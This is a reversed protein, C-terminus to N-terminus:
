KGILSVRRVLTRDLATLSVFYLGSPLDAARTQWRVHNPGAPRPGDILRVIERGQVDRVVLRVDAARPLDFRIDAPGAAPNPTVPALALVVEGDGVGVNTSVDIKDLIVSVDGADLSTFSLTTTSANATFSWSKTAWQMNWEWAGITDFSFDQSQGAAAVRVHRVYPDLHLEGSLAFSVTYLSGPVTTFSQSLSGAGTGSLALSRTGDAPVWVTENVYELNVGGITWGTLTTAGANILMSGFAPLTPGTEFSGNVLLNARAMGPALVLALATISVVSRLRLPKM